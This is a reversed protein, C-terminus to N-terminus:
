GKLQTNAHWSMPVKRENISQIQSKRADTDDPFDPIPNAKFGLAKWFSIDAPHVYNYLTPYEHKIFRIDTTVVARMRDGYPISGSLILATDADIEIVNERKKM